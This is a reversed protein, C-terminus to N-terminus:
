ISYMKRTNERVAELLESISISKTDAVWKAIYPIYGSHCTGKSSVGPVNSPLMYPGDTELLIRDLPLNEVVEKMHDSKTVFGTLGIYCNSFHNVLVQADDNTGTFCHIHMTMDQPAEEKLIELLDEHADRCHIVISKKLEVALKIQIKFASKQAEQDSINRFYDLGCEGLAVAKPHTLCEIMREQLAPTFYKAHHPHIGFAGYCWENNDLLDRWVGLSPSYAAPDCFIAVCAEFNSPFKSHLQDASVRLKDLLNDVHVHTDVYKVDGCEKADVEVADVKKGKGGGGGGGGRGRGRGGRGRGRGRGRQGKSEEESM